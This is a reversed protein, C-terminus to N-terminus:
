LEPASTVKAQMATALTELDERKPRYYFMGLASIGIFIHLTKLYDGLLFLVFGYIGISECLALSIFMAITYKALPSPQNSLVPPELSKPGSPGSGGSLMLKRIFHTMVLTVIAIGYLIKRILDLPLDPSISKRIGDGWQHCIFVYIFLSGLMAAWIIWLIQFGKENEAAGAM